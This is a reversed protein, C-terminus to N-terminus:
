RQLTEYPSAFAKAMEQEALSTLHRSLQQLVLSIRDLARAARLLV